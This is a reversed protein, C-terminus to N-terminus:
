VAWTYYKKLHINNTPKDLVDGESTTLQYAGSGYASIIVYPGLWNPEFKGKKERDQQNRPNEKLVLDGILFIRPIVKHNYSRCMRQQYAKLHTYAHQWKEDILELEQLRNVRYEENPILGKLSERLSPIEVELPLIAESGYVLSYPTAGTPTCISTKYAWLAPNLQVHWDKGEDNVIKKLIKLITKNSAEAQGNGQPYYPTSFHHQIKFRDCLEQVDQNKFPQGNDIIISSPIGYRCILYNLIFSAIQKGTMTTM